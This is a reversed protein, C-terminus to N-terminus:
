RTSGEYSVFNVLVADRQQAVSGEVPMDYSSVQSTVNNALLHGDQTEQAIVYSGLLLALALSAFSLRKGFPSYIFFAWMSCVGTEEVRQIVRAYFGPAPEAEEPARLSRLLAAQASMADVESSCDVCSRLHERLERSVGTGLKDSLGMSGATGKGSLLDELGNRISEHM